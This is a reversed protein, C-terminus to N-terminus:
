KKVLDYSLQVTPMGPSPSKFDKIAIHGVYHNSQDDKLYVEFEDGDFYNLIASYLITWSVQDNWLQFDWTGSGYTTVVLDRLAETYDLSGSMGPVEVNILVPSAPLIIPRNTAFLSFDSWSNKYVNEGSKKFYISHDNDTNVIWSSM